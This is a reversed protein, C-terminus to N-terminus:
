SKIRFKSPDSEIYVLGTTVELYLEYQEHRDPRFLVIIMDDSTGNPFFRVHAEETELCDLGNVKFVKFAVKDSITASQGSAATGGLAQGAAPSAGEIALTNDKARFVLQAVSGQFIARQRASGCVEEIDRVAQALAERNSVQKAFPISMGMIVLMIGIVVMIEILTFARLTSGRAHLVSSFLRLHTPAAAPRPRCLRPGHKTLHTGTM